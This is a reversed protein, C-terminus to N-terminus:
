SAHPRCVSANSGRATFALRLVFGYLAHNREGLIPLGAVLFVVWFSHYHPSIEARESKM